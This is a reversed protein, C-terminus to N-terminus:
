VTVLSHYVQLYRRQRSLPGGIHLVMGVDRQVVQWTVSPAAQQAWSDDPSLATAQVAMGTRTGTRGPHELNDPRPSGDAQFCLVLAPQPAPQRRAHSTNHWCLRLGQETLAHDHRQKSLPTLLVANSPCRKCQRGYAPRPAAVPQDSACQCASWQKATMQMARYRPKQAANGQLSLSLSSSCRKVRQERSLNPSPRSSPTISSAAWARSVQSRNMVM